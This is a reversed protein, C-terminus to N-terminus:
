VKVGECGGVRVGECGGVRVDCLRDTQEGRARGSSCERCPFPATM